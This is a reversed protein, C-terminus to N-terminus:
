RYLKNLLMLGQPTEIEFPGGVRSSKIRGSIYYGDENKWKGISGVAPSVEIKEGQKDKNLSNEYNSM